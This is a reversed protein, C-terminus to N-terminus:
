DEDEYLFKNFSESFIDHTQGLYLLTGCVIFLAIMFVVLYSLFIEFFTM